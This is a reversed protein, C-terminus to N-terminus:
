LVVALRDEIIGGDQARVNFDISLLRESNDFSLELENIEVIGPVSLIARTFLVNLAGLAPNKVFVQSLYPVGVLVNLFWEGRHFALAIKLEQAIAAPEGPADEVLSLQANTIDLDGDANLAIDSM